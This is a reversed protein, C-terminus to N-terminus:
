IALLIRAIAKSLNGGPQVTDLSQPDIIPVWRNTLMAPLPYYKDKLTMRLTYKDLLEM